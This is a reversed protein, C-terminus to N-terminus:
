WRGPAWSQPWGELACEKVGLYSTVAVQAAEQPLM